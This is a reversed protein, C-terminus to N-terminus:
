TLLSGTKKNSYYIGNRELCCLFVVGASGCSQMRIAKKCALHREVINMCIYVTFCNYVSSLHAGGDFLVKLVESFQLTQCGAGCHEGAYVHSPVPMCCGHMLCLTYFYVTTNSTKPKTKLLFPM